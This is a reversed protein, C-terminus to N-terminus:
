TWLVGFGVGEGVLTVTSGVGFGVAVGVGGVIAGVGLGVGGVGCGVAYSTSIFPFTTSQAGSLLYFYLQYGAACGVKSLENAATDFGNQPGLYANKLM